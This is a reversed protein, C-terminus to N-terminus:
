REVGRDSMVDSHDFSRRADTLRDHGTRQNRIAPDRREHEHVPLGKSIMPPALEAYEETERRALDTLDTTSAVALTADHVNRCELCQCMVVIRCRHEGTVAQDDDVLAM